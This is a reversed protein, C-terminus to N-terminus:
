CNHFEDWIDFVEVTTTSTRGDQDKKEQVEVFAQSSLVVSEGVVAGHISPERNVDKTKAGFAVKLCERLAGAIDAIARPIVSQYGERIPDVPL